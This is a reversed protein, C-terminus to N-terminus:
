TQNRVRFLKAFRALNIRKNKFINLEAKANNEGDMLFLGYPMVRLLCHKEAPLVYKEEEMYQACQNVIMSLVDDFRDLFLVGFFTLLLLVNCLFM